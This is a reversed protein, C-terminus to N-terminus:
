KVVSSTATIAMTKDLKDGGRHQVNVFLRSSTLDFYIGTPEAECDTLSAFRTV